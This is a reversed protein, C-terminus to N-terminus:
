AADRLHARMDILPLTVIARLGGEHNVLRIDGGHNRIINRAISLGLGVGGTEQNRSDEIRFFPMFVQEAMNAPIGPGDDEIVIDIGDSHTVMSIRARKGYRTANEVLNRLARRLSDPRCRYSIRLGNNFTVDHGMDALDDSLSQILATLDVSRTEEAASDERAFSLTAETMKQMEDITALMKERMEDDNVFEARLRLSTIPTRLDHGIAALLRTRDAIFRQLREQMRNFAQATHRVDYPGTEPLPTVTEGRGLAEAAAAMRRMPRTIGRTAIMLLIALLAATVAVSWVHFTWFQEKWPKAFAINLWRGGNDLKLSMGIANAKEIKEPKTDDLCIFKAIRPSKWEEKNPAIWVSNEPTIKRIDDHFASELSKAVTIASETSSFPQVLRSWADRRWAAADAPEAESVWFRSNLTNNTHLIDGALSPPTAEILRAVTEAQSLLEERYAARIAKDREDRSFLLGIAQSVILAIIALCVFQTAISMDWFRKM